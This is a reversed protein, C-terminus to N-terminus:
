SHRRVHQNSSMQPWYAHFVVSGGRFTRRIKAGHQAAANIRQKLAPPTAFPKATGLYVTSM